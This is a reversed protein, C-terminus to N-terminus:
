KKGIIFYEMAPNRMLVDEQIIQFGSNKISEKLESIKLFKIDPLIKFNKALSIGAGSLVNLFTRKERLCATSSILLGGPKLLENIRKIIAGTDQFYLLINLGLVVDYYQQKFKQDYITTNEFLANNIKRQKAMNNATEIMKPSIDLGHVMKVDNALEFSFVGTACGFDLVVDRANLHPKIWELTKAFGKDGTARQDYSNSINDWFRISRDM